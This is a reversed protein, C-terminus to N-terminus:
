AYESPEQHATNAAIYGFTLSLGLPCGAGWYADRAPSAICNGTGYLGPIPRGDTSLVRARADIMPGGNTDLAGAGLIVAFYPGAERLPHMTVNTGQNVPWRTDQRMPSFAQHWERDYAADGRQFDKDKGVLAFANFKTITAKLNDVFSSDLSFGGTYPKIKQLRQEIQVALEELTEGKLVFPTGTQNEPLPYDGAFAEATREDYIMFLLQNSYEARTADYISHVETRDNYNRKENVIRVGYKNVQFMSDGPTFFVCSALKSNKITEELVVQARWAGSLNGMRAGVAGAIDIFDGTAMPIACAGYIRNQQYNEVANPNHVFGGSAFIVAKHAKFSVTKDKNKTVIGIVRGADDTVLQVARHELLITTDNKVLAREMQGMMEAGMGFNKMEEVGKGIKADGSVVGLTRGAPVKNEPIQDLYDPASRDLHWMRWEALNLAGWSKLKEIAKSANDYFAEILSYAHPSLGLTPSVPNYQEPFSYRALYKLCDEKSDEIGKEKLTFNNPIWLVAGTKASTGGFIPAKEVVIVSDGNERATVAATAAGIGSGVIIIDAQHGWNVAAQEGESSKCSSLSVVGLTTAAVGAGVLIQRRTIGDKRTSM